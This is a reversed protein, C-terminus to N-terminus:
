WLLLVMVAFAVVAAFVYAIVAEPRDRMRVGGRWCLMRM